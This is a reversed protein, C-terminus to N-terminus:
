FSCFPFSYSIQFVSTFYCSYKVRWAWPLAIITAWVCQWLNAPGGHQCSAAAPSLTDGAEEPWGCSRQSRGSREAEGAGPGPTCKVKHHLHWSRECIVQIILTPLKSSILFGHLSYNRQTHGLVNKCTGSQGKDEENWNWTEKGDAQEASILDLMLCLPWIYIPWGTGM